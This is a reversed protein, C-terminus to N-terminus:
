AAVAGLDASLTAMDFGSPATGLADLWDPSLVAYGEDCCVRWFDWTMRKREGWTVCDLGNRDYGVIPVAHGGWSGPSPDGHSGSILVSWEEQVQASVPLSLGVYAGGFLWVAQKVHEENGPDLAAFATIKHGGIGVKRWYNLVDLEVSGQDTSPDDPVYGTIASYAAVIEADPVVVQRGLEATWVQVMHGVTAEACDGVEDNKMPGLDTLNKGWDVAAPAAKLAVLYRALRLTRHDIRPKAKGLKMAAHNAM